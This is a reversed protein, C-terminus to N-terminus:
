SAESSLLYGGEVPLAVGTIWVAEDSLLFAVASAVDGPFGLRGLPYSRTLSKVWEPRCFVNATQPTNVLGPCVCNCRINKPGLDLALARTFQILAAKASAYALSNPTPSIGLISAIAVISGRGRRELYPVVSRCINFTTKVNAAFAHDLAGEDLQELSGPVWAGACNVVGSLEGTEAALAAVRDCDLPSLLDVVATTLCESPAISKCQESRTTAVVRAGRDLLTRVVAKGIGSNSATVIFTQSKSPHSIM